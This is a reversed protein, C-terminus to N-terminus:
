RRWAILAASVGLGAAVHLAPWLLRGVAFGVTEVRRQALPTRRAPVPARLTATDDELAAPHQVMWLILRWQEAQSLRLGEHV